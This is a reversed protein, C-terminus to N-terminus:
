KFRCPETEEVIFHSSIISILVSTGCTCLSCNNASYFVTLLIPLLTYHKSNRTTKCGHQKVGARGKSQFYEEGMGLKWSNPFVGSEFFAWSFVWTWLAFNLPLGLSGTPRPFSLTAGLRPSSHSKYFPLTLLNACACYDRTPHPQRLARSNKLPPAAMKASECFPSM